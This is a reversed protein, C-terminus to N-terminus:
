KYKLILEILGGMLELLSVYRAYARQFIGEGPSPQVVGAGQLLSFGFIEKKMWLQARSSRNAMERKLDLTPEESRLSHELSECGDLCYAFTNRASVRKNRQELRAVLNPTEKNIRAGNIHQDRAPQCLRPIHGGRGSAAGSHNSLTLTPPWSPNLQPRAYLPSSGGHGFAAGRVRLLLYGRIRPFKTCVSSLFTVGM